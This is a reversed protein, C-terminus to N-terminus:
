IWGSRLLIKHVLMCNKLWNSVTTLVGKTNIIYQPLVTFIFLLQYAKYQHTNLLKERIKKTSLVTYNLLV